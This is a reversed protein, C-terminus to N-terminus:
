TAPATAEGRPHRRHRGPGAGIERAGRRRRGNRGRRRARRPAHGHAGHRRAGARGDGDGSPAHRGAIATVVGLPLGADLLVPGQEIHVEVYAAITAPDRADAAIARPRPGRRAHGRRLARRRRRPPRAPRRRVERPARPERPLEDPLARGGRRRLCRGRDRHPLREGRATCSRWAPSRSSSAWCATTSAATECRTTTRARSSPRRARACGRRLPRHRQGRRRHPGGDGSRADLGRDARAAARHAPRSGPARTTTPPTATAPSRRPAPSCNAAPPRLCRPRAREDASNECAHGRGREEQRGAGKRGAPDLALVVVAREDRLVRREELAPLAEGEVRGAIAAGRTTATPPASLPSNMRWDRSRASRHDAWTRESRTRGASCWKLTM